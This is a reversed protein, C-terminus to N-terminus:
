LQLAAFPLLLVIRVSRLTILILQNPETEKRSGPFIEAPILLFLLQLVMNITREEQLRGDM